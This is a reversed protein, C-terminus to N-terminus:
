GSKLRQLAVRRQEMTLDDVALFVGDPAEEKAIREETLQVYRNFAALTSNKLENARASLPCAVAIVLVFIPIPRTRMSCCILVPLLEVPWIPRSELCSPFENAPRGPTLKCDGILIPLRPKRMATVSSTRIPHQKADWLYLPLSFNSCRKSGM